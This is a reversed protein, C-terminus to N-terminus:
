KDIEIVFSTYSDGVNTYADYIGRMFPSLAFTTSAFRAANGDSDDRSDSDDIWAPFANMLKVTVKDHSVSPKGTFTIIHTKGDIYSKMNSDSPTQGIRKVTIDYGGASSVKYNSADCLFADDKHLANFDVAVSFRLLGTARDAECKQLQLEEGRAVRFRGLDGNWSPLLSVDTKVQPQNFRYMEAADSVNAFRSFAKDMFIRDIVNKHAIMMVYFPRAGDYRYKAGNYPYYMGHYSGRVKYLVVSKDPYQRFVSTALSNVENFIKEKSVDKTDTPSYIMDSVLVRVEDKACGDLMKKLIPFFYTYRADGIDRTSAYINKDKLFGAVSAKYAYVDDNVISISVNGYGAGDSPFFNILDNVTKKLEGRGERTDYADMSGSRELYISLHLKRKGYATVNWSRSPRLREGVSNIYQGLAEVDVEGNSDLYDSYARSDSKVVECIEAFRTETTDGDLMAKKVTKELDSHGCGSMLVMVLLMVIAFIGSCSKRMAM